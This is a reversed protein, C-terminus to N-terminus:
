IGCDIPIEDGQLCLQQCSLSPGRWLDQLCGRICSCGFGWWLVAWFDAGVNLPKPSGEFVGVEVAGIVRKDWVLPVALIAQAPFKIEEALELDHRPDDEPNNVIVPEGREAVWGVIGEGPELFATEFFPVDIDEVEGPTPVPVCAGVLGALLLLMPAARRRM